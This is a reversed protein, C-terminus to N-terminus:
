KSENNHEEKHKTPTFNAQCVTMDAIMDALLSIACAGIYEKYWACNKGLCKGSIQMNGGAIMLPCYKEEGM